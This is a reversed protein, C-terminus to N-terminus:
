CSTLKVANTCGSHVSYHACSDREEEAGDCETLARFTGNRLSAGELFRMEPVSPFGLLWLIYDKM